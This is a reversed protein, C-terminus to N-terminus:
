LLDMHVHGASRVPGKRRSWYGSMDLRLLLYEFLDVDETDDGPVHLDPDLAPAKLSQHQSRLGDIFQVVKSRFDEHFRKLTTPNPATDDTRGASTSVAENKLEQRQQADFQLVLGYIDDLIQRLVVQKRKLLLAHLISDLTAEHVGRLHDLSRVALLTHDYDLNDIHAKATCMKAHFNSWHVGIATNQCYDAIGTIFNHMELVMKHDSQGSSTTSARSRGNLLLTQTVAQVRMTRLLHQSIRDYKSLIEPTIVAELMENPAVYQLRLFDLAYISDVDRCKELEDAPMDRIAFSMSDDLRRETPSFSDSLISMLVLRLESGAPPWTDRAQLRLGTSAGTRRLGEGSTQDSDFLAISLRSSFSANGFLHFSRQLNLHGILNHDQFLLCLVSYSVLRHQASVLPGLSLGLIEELDLSLMHEETHQRELYAIVQAHLNEDKIEELAGIGHELSKLELRFPNVPALPMVMPEDLSFSASTPTELPTTSTSSEASVLLSKMAEEYAEARSQLECVDEFSFGLELIKLPSSSLTTTSLLSCEPSYKKLLKLSQRARQITTALDSGLLVDWAMDTPTVTGPSSRLLDDSRTSCLGIQESLIALPPQCTRSIVCQVVEGLGPHDLSVRAAEQILALILADDTRDMEQTTKLQKLMNIMVAIKTAEVKLQLLSMLSPGAVSQYAEIAHLISRLTSLLGVRCPSLEVSFEDLLHFSYRLNRVSVGIDAFKEFYDRVLISSYGYATINQWQPVFSKDEEEYKFLVSARGLCIESLAHLLVDPKVHIPPDQDATELTSQFVRPSAESLYASSPEDHHKDLFSDWSCLQRKARRKSIDPLIWVDVVDDEVSSGDFSEFYDNESDSTSTCSANSIGPLPVDELSLHFVNPKLDPLSEAPAENLHLFESELPKSFHFGDWIEPHPLFAISNENIAEVSFPDVQPSPSM